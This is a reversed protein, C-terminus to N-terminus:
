RMSVLKEHGQKQPLLWTDTSTLVPYKLKTIIKTIFNICLLGGLEFILAFTM